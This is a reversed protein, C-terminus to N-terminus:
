KELHAKILAEIEDRTTDGSISELDDSIVITQRKDNIQIFASLKNNEYDQYVTLLKVESAAEVVPKTIEVNVSKSLEITKITESM